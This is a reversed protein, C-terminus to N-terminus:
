RALAAAVEAKIAEAKAKEAEERLRRKEEVAKAREAAKAKEAAEKLAKEYEAKKAAEEEADRKAEEEADKKAQEAAEKMAKIKEELAKKEADHKAKLAAEQAKKAAKTKKLEVELRAHEADEAAEAAEAEADAKAQAERAAKEAALGRWYEITNKVLDEDVKKQDDCYCEKDVGPVPDVGEFSSPDCAVYDTNNADVVAFQSNTVDEFSAMKTGNGPKYKAGYFVRGKKCSCQGGDESCHYPEYKPMPECFCQKPLEKFEDLSSRKGHM